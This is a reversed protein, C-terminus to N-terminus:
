RENLPRSHWRKNVRMVTLTNRRRVSRGLASNRRREMEFRIRQSPKDLLALVGDVRREEDLRDRRHHALKSDVWLPQEGTFVIPLGVAMSQRETLISALLTMARQAVKYALLVLSNASAKREQRQREGVSV